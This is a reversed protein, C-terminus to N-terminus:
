DDENEVEVELRRRNSLPSEKWSELTEKVYANMFTKDHKGHEIILNPHNDVSLRIKWTPEKEMKTKRALNLKEAILSDEIEITLEM